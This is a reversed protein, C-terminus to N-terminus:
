KGPPTSEGAAKGCEIRIVAIDDNHLTGRERERHILEEVEAQRSNALMTDFRRALARDEELVRAYWAAIADTLLLFIDGESVEGTAFLIRSVADAQLSRRSPILTPRRYVGVASMDPITGHLAGDNTLRFLCSDGLVAATWRLNGGESEFVLGTFAAFAGALSKEESYWPLRKGEWRSHFRDGIAGLWEGIQQPSMLVVPSLSWCKTLLRAWYRSDFAETAGDAVCFRMRRRMLGVSDECELVSSGSKPAVFVSVKLPSTVGTM